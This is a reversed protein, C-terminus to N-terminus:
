KNQISHVVLTINPRISTYDFVNRIQKQSSAPSQFSIGPERIKKNFHCYLLTHGNKITAM